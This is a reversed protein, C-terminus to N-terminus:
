SCACGIAFHNLTRKDPAFWISRLIAHPPSEPVYLCSLANLFAWFFDGVTSTRMLSRREVVRGNEVFVM